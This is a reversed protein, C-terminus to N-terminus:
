ISTTSVVGVVLRPTTLMEAWVAAILEWRAAEDGISMLEQALAAARPLVPSKLTQSNMQLEMIHAASGDNDASQENKIMEVLPGQQQEESEQHVKHIEFMSDQQQKQIADFLKLIDDKHNNVSVPLLVKCIERRANIHVFQSNSTLM